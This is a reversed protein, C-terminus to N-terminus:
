RVPPSSPMLGSRIRAPSQSMAVVLSPFGILEPFRQRVASSARLLLPSSFDTRSLRVALKAFALQVTLSTVAVPLAIEKTASHPVPALACV